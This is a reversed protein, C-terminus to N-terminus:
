GWPSLEPQKAKTRGGNPHDVPNKAVGRVIIRKLIKGSDGWKSYVNKHLFLNMLPACACWINRAFLKYIKSPMQLSVLKKKKLDGTKIAKAGSSKVFAVRNSITSFIQSVVYNVPIFYLFVYQNLVHELKLINTPFIRFGPYSFETSLFFRFVGHMSQGLMLKKLSFKCYHDSLLFFPLHVINNANIDYLIKKFFYRVGTQLFGGSSAKRNNNKYRTLFYLNKARKDCLKTYM